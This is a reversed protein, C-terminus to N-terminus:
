QRGRSELIITVPGDNVLEVKMHEQFVGRQVEHGLSELQNMYEEYLPIAEAPTAAEIYSPRNGKKCEGYLTFQSVVLFAGCVDGISSNLRGDLDDYVRLQSTKRALYAADFPTDGKAIGIFVLAGRGISAVCDDDVTVSARTVRQLVLKM